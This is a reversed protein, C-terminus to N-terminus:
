NHWQVQLLFKCLECGWVCVCVCLCVVLGVLVAGGWWGWIWNKSQLHLMPSEKPLIGLHESIKGLHSKELNAIEELHWKKNRLIVKGLISNREKLHCSNTRTWRLTYYIWNKQNGVQHIFQIRERKGLFGGGESM